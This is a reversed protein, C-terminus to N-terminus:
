FINRTAKQINLIIRLCIFRYFKWACRDDELSHIRGLSRQPSYTQIPSEECVSLIVTPKILNARRKRDDKLSHVRGFCRKKSGNRKDM